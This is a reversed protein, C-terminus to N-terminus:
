FGRSPERLSEESLRVGFGGCLVGLCAVHSQCRPSLERQAVPESPAETRRMSM